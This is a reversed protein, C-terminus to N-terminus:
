LYGRPDFVPPVPVRVRRGTVRHPVVRIWCPKDGPAFPEIHIGETRIEWDSAQYALGQVLVSWGTQHFADAFDVEFSVPETVALRLKLGEDTRFVVSDRLLVYNVPVVHPAWGPQNVAVRGVTQTALLRLCEERDLAELTPEEQQAQEVKQVTEEM